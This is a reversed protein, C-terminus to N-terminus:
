AGSVEGEVEEVYLVLAIWASSVGVGLAGLLIPAVGTRKIKRSSSRFMLLGAVVLAVSVVAPGVLWLLVDERRLTAVLRGTLLVVAGARELSWM